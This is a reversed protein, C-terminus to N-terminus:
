REDDHVFDGPYEDAHVSGDPHEDDHGHDSDDPYECSDHDSHQYDHPHVPCDQTELWEEQMHLGPPSQAMDDM